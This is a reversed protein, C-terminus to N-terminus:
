VVSKRDAALECLYQALALTDIDNRLEFFMRLPQADTVIYTGDRRTVLTLRAYALLSTAAANRNSVKRVGRANMRLIGQKETLATIQRDSEGIHRNARLILANTILQM